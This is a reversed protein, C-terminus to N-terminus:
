HTKLAFEVLVFLHATTYSCLPLLAVLERKRPSIIAFSSFVSLVLYFMPGFVFFGLFLQNLIYCHILLSLVGPPVRIHEYM